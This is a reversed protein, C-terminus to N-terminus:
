FTCVYFLPSKGDRTTIGRVDTIDLRLTDRILRLSDRDLPASLIDAATVAQVTVDTAQELDSLCRTLLSWRAVPSPITALFMSLRHFVAASEIFV